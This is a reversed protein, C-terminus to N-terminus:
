FLQPSFASFVFDRNTENNTTNTPNIVISESAASTNWTYATAVSAILTASQGVCITANSTSVNIVPLQDVV